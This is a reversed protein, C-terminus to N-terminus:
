IKKIEWELRTQQEFIKRYEEYYYSPIIPLKDASSSSMLSGSGVRKWDDKPEAMKVDIYGDKGIYMKHVAGGDAYYEDPFGFLHSSEHCFTVSTDFLQYEKILEGGTSIVTGNKYIYASPGTTSVEKTEMESWHGADQRVAIPFYFIEDDKRRERDPSTNIFEYQVKFTVAVKCTCGGAKNCNKPAFYYGDKNLISNVIKEKNKLFTIMESTTERIDYRYASSLGSHDLSSYNMEKGTATNILKCPYMKLKITATFTNKNSDFEVDVKRGSGAGYNRIPISSKIGKVIDTHYNRLDYTESYVVGDPEGSPYKTKFYTGSLNPLVQKNKFAPIVTCSHGRIQSLDVVPIPPLKQSNQKTSSTILETPQPPDQIPHHMDGTSSDTDNFSSQNSTSEKKGFTYTLPCEIENFIPIPLIPFSQSVKAGSKFIHQGAKSEFKAPTIIEIGRSSIIIQSGGAWMQLTRSDKINLNNEDITETM